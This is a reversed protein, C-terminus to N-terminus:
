PRWRIPADRAPPAIANTSHMVWAHPDFDPIRWAHLINGHDSGVAAVVTHGDPSLALGTVVVRLEDLLRIQRGQTDVITIAGEAVAVGLGAEVFAAWQSGPLLQTVARTARDFRYLAGGDLAFVIEHATALHFGVIKQPLTAIVTPAAGDWVLLDHSRTLFVRGDAAVM